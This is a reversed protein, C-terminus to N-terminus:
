KGKDDVVNGMSDEFELKQFDGDVMEVAEKTKRQQPQKTKARPAEGDVDYMPVLVGKLSVGTIFLIM